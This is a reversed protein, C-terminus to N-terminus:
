AVEGEEKSDESAYNKSTESRQRQENEGEKCSEGQM